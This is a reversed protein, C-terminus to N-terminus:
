PKTIIPDVLAYQQVISQWTTEIEPILAKFAQQETLKRLEDVAESESWSNAQKKKQATSEAIGYLYETRVDYFAASATTSVSVDRDDMFGLSVINLPSLTDEGVHFATDFTYVLLIDARLRAAANRLVKLDDLETPLLIRNVPALGRVAMLKSLRNIDDDSEINRTTVVSYRGHGYSHEDFNRYGSAQLRIIAINAPFNAAPQKAMLDNISADSLASLPAKGGPTTYSTSCASILGLTFLFLLTRIM